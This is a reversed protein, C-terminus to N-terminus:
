INILHEILLEEKLGYGCSVTILGESTKLKNVFVNWKIFCIQSCLFNFFTMNEISLMKDCHM